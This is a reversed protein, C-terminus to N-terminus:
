MFWLTICLGLSLFPVFPLEIIKKDFFLYNISFALLGLLSSFFLWYVFSLTPLLVGWSILLLYDGQGLKNTLTPLSFYLLLLLIFLLSNFPRGLYFGYGWLILSLSYFIRPEVLYYFLDTLSLLFAMTLWLLLFYTSPTQPQSYFWVFLSGYAIESFLCILPISQHCHQCRFKKYIISFIPVLEWYALPHKCSTCQSRSFLFSQNIPLREAVVCFFSGFCCGTIFYILM